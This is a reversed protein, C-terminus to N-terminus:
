SNKKNKSSKSKGLSINTTNELDNKSRKVVSETLSELNESLLSKSKRKRKNVLQESNDENQLQTRKELYNEISQPIEVHKIEITPAKVEPLDIFRKVNIVNKFNDVLNLLSKQTNM